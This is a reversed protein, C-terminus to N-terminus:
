ILGFQKRPCQDRSGQRFHAKVYKQLAKIYIYTLDMDCDSFKQLQIKVDFFM